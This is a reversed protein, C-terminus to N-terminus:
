SKQRAVIRDKVAEYVNSPLVKRDLLENKSKYPRGKIIAEARTAGIQPLADLEEVSASNIDVLSARPAAAPASQAPTAPKAAGGSAAPAQALAPFALAVAAAVLSM